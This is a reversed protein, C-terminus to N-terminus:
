HITECINKEVGIANGSNANADNGNNKASVYAGLQKCLYRENSSPDYANCPDAKASATAMPETEASKEVFLSQHQRNRNGLRRRVSGTGPSPSEGLALTEFTREKNDDRRVSSSTEAIVFNAPLLILMSFLPFTFKM